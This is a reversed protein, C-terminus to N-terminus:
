NVKKAVIITNTGTHDDDIVVTGSKIGITHVISFKTKIFNVLQEFSYERVHESNVPIHGIINQPTSLILLANNKLVRHIESLYLCDNQIHEVTEMSLVVDFIHDDFGITTVDQQSFELNHIHSYKTRGSELTASDYDGCIIKNVYPACMAAGYGEGSAIDLVIDTSKLYKKAIEYHFSLQDGHHIRKANVELRPIVYIHRAEDRCKRLYADDYSPLRDLYKSKFYPNHKIFHKLHVYFKENGMEIMNICKRVAGVRFIESSFQVPYDDPFKVMDLNETIIMDSMTHIADTDFWMNLGDVRVFYANEDLDKTAEVMRHLPSHDFGYYINCYDSYLNQLIDLAGGKDFEPSIITIKSNPYHHHIREITHAVASKGDIGNMCLDPGGSWSVSSAQVLFLDVSSNSMKIGVFM